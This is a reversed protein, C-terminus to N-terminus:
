FKLPFIVEGPKTPKRHKGVDPHRQHWEIVRRQWYDRAEKGELITVCNPFKRQVATISDEGPFRSDPLWAFVVGQCQDILNPHPVNLSRRGIHEFGAAFV